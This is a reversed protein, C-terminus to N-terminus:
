DHLTRHLRHRSNAVLQNYDDSESEPQIVKNAGQPPECTPASTAPPTARQTGLDDANEMEVDEDARSGDDGNRTTDSDLKTAPTAKKAKKAASTAAHPPAVRKKTAVSTVFEDNRVVTPEVAPREGPPVKCLEEWEPNIFDKLVDGPDQDSVPHM